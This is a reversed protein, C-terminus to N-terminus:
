CASLTRLQVRVFGQVAVLKILPWFVDPFVVAGGVQKDLYLSLTSEIFTISSAGSLLCLGMICVIPIRLLSLVSYDSHTDVVAAVSLTRGCVSFFV